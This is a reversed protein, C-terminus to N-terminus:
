DLRALDDHSHDQMKDAHQNPHLELIKRIDDIRKKEEQTLPEPPCYVPFCYSGTLIGLVYSVGAVIFLLAIIRFSNETLIFSM